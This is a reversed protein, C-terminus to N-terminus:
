ECTKCGTYCPNIALVVAPSSGDKCLGYTDNAASCEAVLSTWAGCAAADKGDITCTKCNSFCSYVGTNASSNTCIGKGDVAVTCLAATAGTCTKCGSLCSDCKSGNM